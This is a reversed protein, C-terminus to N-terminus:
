LVVVERLATQHDTATIEKILKRKDEDLTRYAIFNNDRADANGTKQGTVPQIAIGNFTPKLLIDEYPIRLFGSLFRM